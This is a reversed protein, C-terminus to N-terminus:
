SPKGLASILFRIEDDVDDHSSVTEAITNRLCDRFRRRLRHVAVRLSGETAGTREALERFSQLEAGTLFPSLLEFDALNGDAQMEDRLQDLTNVLVSVAWRNEFCQDPTAGAPVGFSDVGWQDIEVHRVGGGRKKARVRDSENALFHKVASLLFSRFRGRARDAQQLYKKELLREFFSQTLDEADETTRGSARVFAFVAPWYREIVRSLAESQGEDGCAQLILSWNTTEFAGRRITRDM